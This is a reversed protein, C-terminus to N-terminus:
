ADFVPPVLDSVIFPRGRPWEKLAERVWAAPALDHAPAFGPPFRLATM